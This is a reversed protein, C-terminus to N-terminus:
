ILSFRTRLWSKFRFFGLLPPESREGGTPPPPHPGRASEIPYPLVEGVEWKAIGSIHKQHITMCHYTVLVMINMSTRYKREISINSKRTNRQVKKRIISPFCWNIEIVLVIISCYERQWLIDILLQTQVTFLLFYAKQTSLLWQHDAYTHINWFLYCGISYWDSQKRYIYWWWFSQNAYKQQAKLVM